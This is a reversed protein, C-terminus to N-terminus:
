YLPQPPNPSSALPRRGRPKEGLFYKGGDSDTGDTGGTSSGGGNQQYVSYLRYPLSIKPRSAVEPLRPPAFAARTPVPLRPHEPVPAPCYLFINCNLRTAEKLGGTWLPEMASCKATFFDKGRCLAPTLPGLRPLFRGRFNGFFCSYSVDIM